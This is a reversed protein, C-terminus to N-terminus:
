IRLVITHMWTCQGGLGHMNWALSGKNGPLVHKGSLASEKWVYLDSLSWSLTMKSTMPVGSTAPSSPLHGLAQAGEKWAPKPDREPVSEHIRSASHQKRIM